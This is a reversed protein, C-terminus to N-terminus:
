GRLSLRLEVEGLPLGLRRSIEPPSCGQEALTAIELAHKDGPSQRDPAASLQAAVAALREGDALSELLALTDPPVAIRLRRAEAVAAELRERAQEAASITTKLAALTRSLEASLDDANLEEAM